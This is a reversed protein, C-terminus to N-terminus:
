GEIGGTLTRYHGGALWLRGKADACIFPYIDNSEAMRHLYPGAPDGGKETIYVIATLVAFPKVKVDPYDDAGHRGGCLRAAHALKLPKISNKDWFQTRIAPATRPDLCFYLRQNPHKPDFATYSGEATKRSFEIMTDRDSRPHRSAESRPLRLHLRALRGMEQLPSPYDPDKWEIVRRAQIGWHHAQYAKRGEEIEEPTLNVDPDVEFGQVSASARNSRARM